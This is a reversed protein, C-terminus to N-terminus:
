LCLVVGKKIDLLSGEEGEWEKLGDWYLCCGYSKM